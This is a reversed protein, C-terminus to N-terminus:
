TPNTFIKNITNAQVPNLDGYGSIVEIGGASFLDLTYPIEVGGDVTIEWNNFKRQLSRQRADHLLRQKEKAAERNRMAVLIPISILLAISAFAVMFVIIQTM